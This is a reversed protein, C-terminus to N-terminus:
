PTAKLAKKISGWASTRPFFVQSGHFVLGNYDTDLMWVPVDAPEKGVAGDFRKDVASLRLRQGIFEVSTLGRSNRIYRHKHSASSHGGCCYRQRNPCDRNM